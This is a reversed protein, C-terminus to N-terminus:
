YPRTPESIHILSLGQLGFLLVIGIFLGSQRLPIVGRSLFILLPIVVVLGAIRAILRHAWEVYFIRQYGALTMEYNVTRFEPTAQYKAFENQWDQATMPPLVGQVPNWEVISLGSRTLRVFGGFVILCFTITAVMYLWRTVRPDRCRPSASM